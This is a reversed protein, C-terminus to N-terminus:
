KKLIGRISCGGFRNDSSVGANGGSFGFYWANDINEMCLSSTWIYGAIGNCQVKDFFSCGVAPIFIYISNDNKKCLKIGKINSSSKEEWTISILGNPSSDVVNGKIEQGTETVLYIDTNNILEIFDERTPIMYNGGIEAHVADDESDLVTKGDTSNYKLFDSNGINILHKYDDWSFQKLGDGYGIQESTYGQTDGWQFYLGADEETEAGLNKKAWKTGSPLGLDIYNGFFEEKTISYVSTGANAISVIKKQKILEMIRKHFMPKRHFIEGKKGKLKGDESCYDELWLNMFGEGVWNEFKFCLSLMARGDNHSADVYFKLENVKIDRDGIRLVPYENFFHTLCKSAGGIVQCGILTSVRIIEIFPNDQRKKNGYFNYGFTYIMLLTGAKFGNKDKKLYLGLNKNASRYGYFCNTELFPRLEKNDVLRVECDRAYFRHDIHGTATKITNKIVEWQRHYDKLVEGTYTVVDSVQNMEFDFIWITRINKEYNKHSINIFYNHPVGKHSEGFRNSNDMPYHNSSVYRLQIERNNKIDHIRILGFIEDDVTYPIEYSELFTTIKEVNRNDEESPDFIVKYEQEM